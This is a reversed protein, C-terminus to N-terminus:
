RLQKGVTQFFHFTKDFIFLLAYKTSQVEVLVDKDLQFIQYPINLNGYKAATPFLVSQKLRVKSWELKEYM